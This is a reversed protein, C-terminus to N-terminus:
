KALNLPQFLHIPDRTRIHASRVRHPIRGRLCPQTHVSGRCHSAASRLGALPALQSYPLQCGVRNRTPVLDLPPWTPEVQEALVKGSRGASSPRPALRPSDLRVIELLESEIAPLDHYAVTAM